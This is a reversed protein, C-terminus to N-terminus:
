STSAFTSALGILQSSGGTFVTGTSLGLTQTKESRSHAKKGAVAQMIKLAECGGARGDM